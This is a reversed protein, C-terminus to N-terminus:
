FGFKGNANKWAARPPIEEITDWHEAVKDAEVRFLDYFAVHKGAFRGESVALVFSGEGLVTHVREYTM